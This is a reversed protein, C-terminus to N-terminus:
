DGRLTRVPNQRSAIRAPFYLAIAATTLLVACVPVLTAAEVPQLGFVTHRVLQGLILTSVIGTVAGVGVVLLGQRLILWRLDSPRAGLALRIGLERRRRRVRYAMVGSLGVASLALALGGVVTLLLAPLRRQGDQEAMLAAVTGLGVVSLDEHLERV